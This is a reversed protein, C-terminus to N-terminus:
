EAFGVANLEWRCGIAMKYSLMVENRTNAAITVLATGHRTDIQKDAGILTVLRGIPGVRGQCSFFTCFVGSRASFAQAVQERSLAEGEAGVTLGQPGIQGLLGQANGSRIFSVTEVFTRDLDTQTNNCSQGFAQGVLGMGLALAAFAMKFGITM